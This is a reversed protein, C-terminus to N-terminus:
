LPIKRLTITVDNWEFPGQADAAFIGVEMFKFAHFNFTCLLGPFLIYLCFM